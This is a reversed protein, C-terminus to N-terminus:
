VWAAQWLVTVTGGSISIVNNGPVLGFFDSNEVDLGDKLNAGDGNEYITNRFTDIEAFGSYSGTFVISLDTTDNSITFAGGGTVQFVPYMVTNGVNNLVQSGSFTSSIQTFDIAYPFPSDFTLTARTDPNSWDFQMRDSLQMYDLLRVDDGEPDWLFRGSLAAKLMSAAHKSLTDVMRTLADDCAVEDGDWFSVLLRLRTGTFFREQILSGDAQPINLQQARVDQWMDCGSPVLLYRDGTAANLSLDGYASALTAPVTWDSVPM